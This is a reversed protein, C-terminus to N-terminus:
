PHIELARRTHAAILEVFRPILAAPLDHGMGPIIELRSGPILAHLDHAAGVPVLPDERGHIILTPARIARVLARRSGSAMIALLQRLYGRQDPSRDFDRAVNRRLEVPDPPYAPSSIMRLLRATGEIREERSGRVPRLLKLQVGLRPRPARRGGSTSMISTFSRVRAPHRAALIQGIMSGMSVGLVHASRHGLQELLGLADLAMDELTYPASLPLGFRARLAARLLNPRVGPAVRSSLGVDRNDYVIVHHGADALARCLAEPWRTLQGGLGMILLLPPAAPDGHSHYELEIGNVQARPM